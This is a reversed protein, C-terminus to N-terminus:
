QAKKTDIGRTAVLDSGTWTKSAVTLPTGPDSYQHISDADQHVLTTWPDTQPSSTPVPTHAASRRDVAPAM